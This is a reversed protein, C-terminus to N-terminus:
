ASAALRQWRAWDCCLEALPRPHKEKGYASGVYAKGDKSDFIRYVGRWQQMAAKWLSPLASLEHWRLVLDDWSLMREVLRNEDHIAHIPFHNRSAWRWWSLEKGPWEFVLKGSWRELMPTRHLDFLEISSRGEDATFGKMGFQRMEAHEPIAWYQDLSIPRSGRNEFVEVFLARGPGCAVASVIHTATSMAKEVRVNQTSQYANFLDPRDLAWVRLRTELGGEFPRHRLVMVHDANLNEERLLDNLEM